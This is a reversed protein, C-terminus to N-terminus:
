LSRDSESLFTEIEDKQRQNEKFVKYLLMEFGKPSIRFVTNQHFRVFEFHEGSNPLDRIVSYPIPNEFFVFPSPKLGFSDFKGDLENPLGSTALYVFGLIGQGAQYAVVLDDKRMEEIRRHSSPSRIWDAGGWEYWEGDEIPNTFFRQWHWDHDPDRDSAVVWWYNM